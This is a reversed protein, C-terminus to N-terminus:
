VIFSHFYIYIFLARRAMLWRHSDRAFSTVFNSRTFSLRCFNVHWLPIKYSLLWARSLHQDMVLFYTLCVQCLIQSDMEHTVGPFLNQENWCVTLEREKEPEDHHVPEPHQLADSWQWHSLYHQNRMWLCKHNPHTHQQLSDRWNTSWESATLMLEAIDCIFHSIEDNSKEHKWIIWLNSCM